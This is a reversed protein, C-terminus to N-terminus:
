CAEYGGNGCDGKKWFWFWFWFFRGGVRGFPSCCLFVGEGVVIVIVVGVREAAYGGGVSAEDCRQMNEEWAQEEGRQVRELAPKHPAHCKGVM